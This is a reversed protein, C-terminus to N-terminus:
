DEVIKITGPFHKLLLNAQPWEKEDSIDIEKMSDSKKIPLNQSKQTEARVTKTVERHNSRNKQQSSTEEFKVEGCEDFIELLKKQWVNSSDKIQGLLFSNLKEFGIFIIKKEKEVRIKRAGEFIKYVYKEKLKGLYDLFTTWREDNTTPVHEKKIQESKQNSILTEPPTKKKVPQQTDKNEFIREDKTANLPAQVSKKKSTLELNKTKNILNEISTIDQQECMQVLLHAIFLDKNQTKIFIEEQSWMLNVLANLRNMPIQEAIKKLDETSLISNEDTNAGSKVRVLSILCEVLSQWIGHVAHGGLNIRQSINLVESTNKTAIAEFISKIADPSTEGLFNEVDGEGFNKDPTSLQELINLADRISGNTRRVILDLVKNNIEIKESKTIKKLFEKLDKPKPSSFSGQFCRSRVTAPVKTLETTALIFVVKEPPEELVKLFANFAAKSLMHAEDILYIKKRGMVPIYTCAELIQRVNDVGTHSAADIEIFDPHNGKATSLCSDCKLCPIQEKPKKRFEEVKECNVAAAFIRATTTKGCGHQGFFLYVPFFRNLYLSNKLMSVTLSQGIVDEFIKPRLKRSLNLSTSM